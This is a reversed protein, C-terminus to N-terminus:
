QKKQRETAEEGKKVGPLSVSISEWTLNLVRQLTWLKVTKTVRNETVVNVESSSKYLQASCLPYHALSLHAEEVRWEAKSWSVSFPGYFGVASGSSGCNAVTVHWCHSQTTNGWQLIAYHIISNCGYYGSRKIYKIPTKLALPPAM